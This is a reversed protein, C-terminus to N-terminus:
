TWSNTEARFLPENIGYKLNRSTSTQVCVTVRLLVGEEPTQRAGGLSRGGQRSRGWGGGEM